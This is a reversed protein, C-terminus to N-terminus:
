HKRIALLRRTLDVAGVLAVAVGICLAFPRMAVNCHMTELMCLDILGGPTAAILAGMLASALSLGRREGEDTEFIRVFAVIALVADMGLMARQAWVCSGVGGDAHAGCPGAFTVLGAALVAALALLIVGAIPAAKPKDM